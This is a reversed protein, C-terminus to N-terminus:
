GAPVYINSQPNFVINQNVAYNTITLTKSFTSSTTTILDAPNPVPLNDELLSAIYDVMAAKLDAIAAEPSEGQGFCGELELVQALYIPEGETTEDRIVKIFYSRTALEKAQELLNENM